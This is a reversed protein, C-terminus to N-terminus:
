SWRFFLLLRWAGFAHGLFHESLRGRFLESDVWGKTCLELLKM